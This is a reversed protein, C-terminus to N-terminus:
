EVSYDVNPMTFLYWKGNLKVMEGIPYRIKKDGSVLMIGTETGEAELGDKTKAKETPYAGTPKHQLGALLGDSRMDDRVRQLAPFYKDGIQKNLLKRENKDSPLGPYQLGNKEMYDFTAEDPALGYCLQRLQADDNTKFVRVIEDYVSNLNGSTSPKSNCALLFFVATLTLCFRAMPIM